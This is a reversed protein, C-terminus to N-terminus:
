QAAPHYKRFNQEPMAVVTVVLAAGSVPPTMLLCWRAAGRLDPDYAVICKDPHEALWLGTPQYVFPRGSSPATLILSDGGPMSALEDLSPPLQKNEGYYLLLFGGIDQLRSAALDTSVIADPSAPEGTINGSDDRQSFDISTPGSPVAPRPAAPQCGAVVLAALWGFISNNPMRAFMNMPEVIM